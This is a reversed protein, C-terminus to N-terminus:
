INKIENYAKEQDKVIITSEETIKKLINKYLRVNETKLLEYIVRGSGRNVVGFVWTQEPFYRFGYKSSAILSEDAEVIVNDGGLKSETKNFIIIKSEIRNKLEIITTRSIKLNRLLNKTM